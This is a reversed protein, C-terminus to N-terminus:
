THVATPKGDNAFSVGKKPVAPTPEKTAEQGEYDVPPEKPTALIGTLPKAAPSEIGNSKQEGLKFM